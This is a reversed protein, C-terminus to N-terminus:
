TTEEGSLFEAPIVKMDYGKFAEEHIKKVYAKMKDEADAAEKRATERNIWIGNYFPLECQIIQNNVSDYATMKLTYTILPVGHSGSRRDEMVVSGYQHIGKQKLWEFFDKPEPFKLIIAKQSMNESSRKQLIRKALSRCKARQQKRRKKEARHVALEHNIEMYSMVNSHFLHRSKEACETFHDLCDPCHTIDMETKGCPYTQETM